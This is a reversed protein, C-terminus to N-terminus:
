TMPPVPLALFSSLPVVEIAAKVPEPITSPDLSCVLLELLIGKNPEHFFDEPSDPPTFPTSENVSRLSFARKAARARIFACFPEPLSYFGAQVESCAKPKDMYIIHEKIYQCEFFYYM